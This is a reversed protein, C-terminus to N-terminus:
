TLMQEELLFNEIDPLGSFGFSLREGSPFPMDLRARRCFVPQATGTITARVM